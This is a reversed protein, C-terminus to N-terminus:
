VAITRRRKLLAYVKKGELAYVFSVACLSHPFLNNWSQPNRGGREAGKLHLTILSQIIPSSPPLNLSLFCLASISVNCSYIGLTVSCFQVTIVGEHCLPSFVM